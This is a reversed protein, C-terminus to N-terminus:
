RSCPIFPGPSYSPPQKNNSLWESGCYSSIPNHNPKSGNQHFITFDTNMKSTNQPYAIYNNNNM